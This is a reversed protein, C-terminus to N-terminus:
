KLVFICCYICICILSTENIIHGRLKTGMWPSEYLWTHFIFRSVVDQVVILKM